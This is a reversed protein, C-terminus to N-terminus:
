YVVASPLCGVATIKREEQRRDTTTKEEATRPRRDCDEIGGEASSVDNGQRDNKGGTDTRARIVLVIM